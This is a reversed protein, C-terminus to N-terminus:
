RAMITAAIPATTVRATPDVAKMARNVLEVLGVTLPVTPEPQETGLREPSVTSTVSESAPSAIIPWSGIIAVSM